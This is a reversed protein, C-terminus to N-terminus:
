SYLRELASRNLRLRRSSLLTIAGTAQLQTFARSVSEITLGLYDAMDLRTMPLTLGERAALRDALDLLFAGVKECAGPRSLLLMHDQTRQVDRVSLAWMERLTASNEAALDDLARGTIRQLTTTNIAEAGLRHERGWELGFVDGPYLFDVIQRRGDNLLRHVRVAGSEVRYVFRAPEGQGFIEAGKAYSILPSDRGFPHVPEDHFYPLDLPALGAAIEFPQRRAAPYELM